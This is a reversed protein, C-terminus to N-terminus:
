NGRYGEPAEIGTLEEYAYAIYKKALPLGEEEFWECAEKHFFRLYEIEAESTM